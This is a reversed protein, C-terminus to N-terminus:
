KSEVYAGLKAYAVRSFALLFVIGAIAFIAQTNQGTDALGDTTALGVPDVITGNAENDQDLVGGDTIDYTLTLVSSGQYTTRIISANDIDTFTQNTTNYKRAQYDSADGPLDYYLTVTETNGLTTDFQFSTLGAPYNLTGDTAVSSPNVASVSANTVTDPLSLTVTKGKIPDPYTLILRGGSSTNAAPCTGNYEYAGSDYASCKPRTVGRADTTLGAVTVGADIAPSGTLLPITPVSGGYNGLTGLTSALNSVNNQDTSHNFYPSCTNDDSLNGGLSTISTNETGGAGVGFESCAQSLRTGTTNATLLNNQADVSSDSIHGAGAIGVASIMAFNVSPQITYKVTNNRVVAHVSGNGTFSNPTAAILAGSITFDIDQFTNNDIYGEVDGGSNFTTIGVAFGQPMIIDHFTNSKIVVDSLTEGSESAVGIIASTTVLDHIYTESINIAVSNLGGSTISIVRSTVYSPNESYVELKTISISFGSSLIAYKSDDGPNILSLGDVSAVIPVVGQNNFTFGGNVGASDVISVGMGQGEISISETITPLDGSLTITGSPLVITDDVGDGATCDANTVAQDNINGIAESLSCSSDEVVSDIGDAVNFTAAEVTHTSFVFSAVTFLAVILLLKTIPKLLTLIITM